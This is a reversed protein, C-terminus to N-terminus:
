QVALSDSAVELHAEHKYFHRAIYGSLRSVFRRHFEPLSQEQSPVPSNPPFVYEDPKTWVENGGGAIDYVTVKINAHGQYLTTGKQLRYDELDIKLVMDADVADALGHVDDWEREDTWKEVEAPDVVDIKPVNEALLRGVEQAIERDTHHHRYQISAPPRCLVVVRKEKMGDFAPAVMNGGEAVYFLTALLRGCGSSTTIAVMLLLIGTIGVPSRSRFM